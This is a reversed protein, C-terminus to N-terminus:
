RGRGESPREVLPAPVRSALYRATRTADEAIDALEALLPDDVATRLTRPCALALRAFTEPAAPAPSSTRDGPGPPHAEKRSTELWMLGVLAIAVLV